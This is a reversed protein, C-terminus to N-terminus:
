IIDLHGPHHRGLGRLEVVSVLSRRVASDFTRTASLVYVGWASIISPFM